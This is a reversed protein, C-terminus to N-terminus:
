VTTQYTIAPCTKPCELFNYVHSQLRNIRTDRRSMRFHIPKGLMSTRPHRLRTGAAGELACMDIVYQSAMGDDVQRAATAEGSGGLVEGDDPDDDANDANREDEEDVVSISHNVASSRRIARRRDHDTTARDGAGHPLRSACGGAAVANCSTVPFPHIRGGGVQSTVPGDNSNEGDGDNYDDTGGDFESGSAYRPLGSSGSSTSAM